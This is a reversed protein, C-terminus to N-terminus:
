LHKSVILIVNDSFFRGRLLGLSIQQWHLRPFKPIGGSNTYFFQPSTFGTENSIRVLDKRLLATIHAPYCSDLFAVFHGGICLSLLSRISEQNPTTVILHAGPKLIRHFERFVARPNELHEIVETSVIFDQSDSALPIELNLDCRLWNIHKPLDNPAPIIDAATINLKLGISDIQRLLEGTGSGFDLINGTPCLRRIHAIVSDYIVSGSIGKSAKAAKLRQLYLENM